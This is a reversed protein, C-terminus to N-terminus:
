VKCTVFSQFHIGELAQSDDYTSDKKGNEKEYEKVIFYWISNDKAM